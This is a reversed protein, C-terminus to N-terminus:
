LRLKRLSVDAFGIHKDFHTKRVDDKGDWTFLACNINYKFNKNAVLACKPLARRRIDITDKKSGVSESDPGRFACLIDWLLQSQDNNQALFKDIEQLMQEATKM